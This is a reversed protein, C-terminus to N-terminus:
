VHKSWFFHMLYVVPCIAGFVILKWKSRVLTFDQICGFTSRWNRNLHCFCANAQLFFTKPVLAIIRINPKFFAQAFQGGFCNTAFIEMTLHSRHDDGGSSSKFRKKTLVSYRNYKLYILAFVTLRFCWQYVHPGFGPLPCSRYNDASSLTPPLIVTRSTEMKVKNSKVLCSFIISNTHASVVWHLGTLCSVLQVTIRGM